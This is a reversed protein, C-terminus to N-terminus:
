SKKIGYLTATSYQNFLTGTAPSINLATIVSTDSWLGSVLFPFATTTNNEMASDVSFSKNNSSSYNSFYLYTSSFTSATSTAASAIGGYFGGVDTAVNAAPTNGYIFRGSLNATSGNIKLIIADNLAANNSRVSHFLMLDTYAGSISSFDISSAGGSGVTVSSIKVFTNAM